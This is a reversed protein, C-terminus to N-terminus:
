NGSFFWKKLKNKSKKQIKELLLGKKATIFLYFSSEM